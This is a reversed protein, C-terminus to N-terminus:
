VSRLSPRESALDRQLALWILSMLENLVQEVDPGTAAVLRDAYANIAEDSIAEDIADWDTGKLLEYRAGTARMLERVRELVRETNGTM